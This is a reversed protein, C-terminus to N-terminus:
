NELVIQIWFVSGLRSRSALSAQSEVFVKRVMSEHGGIAFEDTGESIRRGKEDYGLITYKVFFSPGSLNTFTISLFGLGYELPKSLSCKIIPTQEPLNASGLL